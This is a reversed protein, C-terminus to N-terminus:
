EAKLALFSVQATSSLGTVDATVEWVLVSVPVIEGQEDHVHFTGLVTEVLVHFIELSTEAGQEGGHAQESVEVDIVTM